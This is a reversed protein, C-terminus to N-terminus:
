RRLNAIKARRAALKKERGATIEIERKIMGRINRLVANPPPSFGLRARRAYYADLGDHLQQLNDIAEEYRNALHLCRPLRFFDRFGWETSTGEMLRYAERLCAAAADYDQADKHATSAKLLEGVRREDPTPVGRVILIAM